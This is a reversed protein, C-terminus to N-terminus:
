WTFRTSIEPVLDERIRSLRIGENRFHRRGTAPELLAGGAHHIACVEWRDSFVPSGSSGPLTATVYQLLTEDAYEVFNGQLAVQKQQGGPHQIINVREGVGPVDPVCTLWGWEKGPDDALELVAYDLQSNVWYHGAGRPRVAAPTQSVGAEDLEYNFLVSTYELLDAGPVVHANTVLLNESVLFGTGSWRGPGVDLYAVARSARWAKALFAVPRLTNAGIIKEEVAQADDAGRWSGLAPQESVPVMMSYRTLLTALFGRQEVGVLPQVTNLFLGLAEQGLSVRGYATLHSVIANAAVFASGSLDVRSALSGLGALDLLARRGDATGLEPIGVLLSVLNRRDEASLTIM